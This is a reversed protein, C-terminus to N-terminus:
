KKLYAFLIMQGMRQAENYSQAMVLDQDVKRKKNKKHHHHHHQQFDTTETDKKPMQGCSQVLSLVLATIM